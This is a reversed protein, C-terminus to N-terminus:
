PYVKIAVILPGAPSNTNSVFDLSVVKIEPHPNEWTQRYLRLWREKGVEQATEHHKWVPEPFNREANIQELDGWFRATTKGYVIPVREVTRDAYHWVLWGATDNAPATWLTGQLWCAKRFNRAVSLGTRESVFAPRRAQRYVDRDDPSIKGQLQTLGNLWYDENGVSLVRGHQEQFFPRLQPALQRNPPEDFLPLTWWWPHDGFACSWSRLDLASTIAPPRDVYFPPGKLGFLVISERACYPVDALWRTEWYVDSWYVAGAATLNRFAPPEFTRFEDPAEAQHSACRLLPVQEAHPRRLLELKIDRRTYPQTGPPLYSAESDSKNVNPSLEYEYLGEPDAGPKRSTALQHRADSAIAEQRVKPCIAGDAPMLGAAFLDVLREPYNGDHARRWAQLSEALKRLERDCQLCPSSTSPPQVPQAGAFILWLNLACLTVWFYIRARKRQLEIGIV